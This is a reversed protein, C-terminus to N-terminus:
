SKLSALTARAEEAGSFNPQMQLARELTRKADAYRGAKAYAMGLHFQYEVNGAEARTARELPPIALEPMSRKYYVWGLTDDVEHRDPLLQKATQALQLATDLKENAEAYNWALNNAAVPALTTSAIIEEYVRRSDQFRGQTDYLLGVMTRAGVNDPRLSALKEFEMRAQEIKNQRVYLQGLMSYAVFASPNVEIARRLHKEAGAGDGLSADLRAALVLIESSDPSAALARAVRARADAPRKLQIDAAVRGSLASINGPELELARDFAKAAGAGDSRASLLGGHLAHVAAVNPHDTRLARLESEARAFDRLALYARAVGLRAELNAPDATRAMQARRLAEDPNGAALSLRSLNLEASRARPNIRLVENFERIAPEIKGAAALTQALVYHASASNPDLAVARKGTEEAEAYKRETLYFRTKLIAVDPSAGEQKLEADLAAHAAERNGTTFDLGALRLIALTRSENKEKLRVYMARAEDVRKTRAYHDAVTIMGAPDDMGALVLLPAEAEAQRNSALYFLALMRNALADQPHAAVAAKLQEEAKPAAGTSWYFLGLGIRASLASPNLDVARKYAQEAQATEGQALRISGLSTHPRSDDPALQIAEEVERVATPLDQLGALAHALLLQAEVNKPDAQLALESAKRAADFQRSALLVTAAKTQVDSRDPLLEAARLYERSAEPVRSAKFYAEALKYRAEGFRANGKLANRYELVAEQYEGKAMHADGKQMAQQRAAEPDGCAVLSLACVVALACFRLSM